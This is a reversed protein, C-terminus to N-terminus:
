AGEARGVITQAMVIVFQTDHVYMDLTRSNRAFLAVNEGAVLELGEIFVEGVGEVGMEM